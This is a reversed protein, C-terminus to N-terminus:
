QAAADAAAPWLWVLCRQADLGPVQMPQVEAAIGAPLAAIEADPTQGKLACWVGGPALLRATLRVLLPLDSFARATICDFRTTAPLSEVRAHHVHVHALGLSAAAQRLFACKKQVTDVLHVATDPLFIALVLGPLGGGSGVDLLTRPARAAIPPVAALCDALHLRAIGPLHRVATLNYTANWRQLLEAYDLLAQLQAPTAPLGLASLTSQLSARLDFDAPAPTQLATPAAVPSSASRPPRAAARGRPAARSM